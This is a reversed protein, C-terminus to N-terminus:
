NVFKVTSGSLSTLTVNDISGAREIVGEVSVNVSSPVLKTTMHEILSWVSANLVEGVCEGRTKDGEPVMGGKGLGTVAVQVPMNTGM